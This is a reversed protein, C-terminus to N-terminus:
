TCVLDAGYTPILNDIPDSSQSHVSWVMGAILYLSDIYFTPKQYVELISNHFFILILNFSDTFPLFFCVDFTKHVIFLNFMKQIYLINSFYLEKLM